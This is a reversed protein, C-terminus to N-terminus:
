PTFMSNFLAAADSQSAPSAASSLNNIRTTGQIKEYRRVTSNYSVGYIESDTMQITLAIRRDLQDFGDIVAAYGTATYTGSFIENYFHRPSYPSTIIILDCALAKDSYRSPAMVRDTINHPDLVRLLDEYQITKPRLEDLILTHEGAYGQFPDRSSGSIFYPQDAKDAYQKALRTKGTGAPGCIWIVQIKKGQKVM